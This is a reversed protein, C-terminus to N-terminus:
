VSIPSPSPTPCAPPFATLCTPLYAPPSVPLYHPLCALVCASLSLYLRVSLSLCSFSASSSLQLSTSVFCLFIFSLLPQLLAPLAPVLSVQRQAPCRSSDVLHGGLSTPDNISSRGRGTKEGLGRDEAMQGQVVQKETRCKRRCVESGKHRQRLRRKCRGRTHRGSHKRRAM